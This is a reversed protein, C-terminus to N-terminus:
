SLACLWRRVGLQGVLERLRLDSSFAFHWTIRPQPLLPANPEPPRPSSRRGQDAPSHSVLCILLLPFFCNICQRMVPRRTEETDRWSRWHKMLLRTTYSLFIVKQFSNCTSVGQGTERLCRQSMWFFWKQCTKRTRVARSEIWISM